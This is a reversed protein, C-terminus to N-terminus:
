QACWTNLASQLHKPDPPIGSISWQVIRNQVGFIVPVGQLKFIASTNKSPDAFWQANALDPFRKRFLKVDDSQMGGAIVITWAPLQPFDQASLRGLLAVCPQCRPEVYVILWKGQLPWDASPITRGDLAQVDFNPMPMVETAKGVHVLFLFATLLVLMSIWGEPFDSVRRVHKPFM